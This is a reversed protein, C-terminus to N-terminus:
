STTRTQLHPTDTVQDLWEDHAAQDFVNATLPLNHQRHDEYFGVAAALSSATILEFVCGGHNVPLTMYPKLADQIESRTRGLIRLRRITNVGQRILAIKQRPTCGCVDLVTNIAACTQFIQLTNAATPSPHEILFVTADAPIALVPAPPAAAM